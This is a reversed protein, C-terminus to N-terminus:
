EGYGSHMYKWVDVWNGCSKGKKFRGYDFVGMLFQKFASFPNNFDIITLFQM